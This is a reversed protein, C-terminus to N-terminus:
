GGVWDMWKKLQTGPVMNTVPLSELLTVMAGSKIDECDLLHIPVCGSSVASHHSMFSLFPVQGLSSLILFPEGFSMGQLILTNQWTSFLRHPDLTLSYM